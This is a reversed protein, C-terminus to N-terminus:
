ALMWTGDGCETCDASFSQGQAYLWHSQALTPVRLYGRPEGAYLVRYVDRVDTREIKCTLGEKEVFVGKSGPADTYVEYGRIQGRLSEETRLVVNYDEFAPCSVWVKPFVNQLFDWRQGFSWEKFMPFGNWMWIDAIRLTKGEKETRFITTEMIREDCAVSIPRPQATEFRPCYYAQRPMLIIWGPDGSGQPVKCSPTTPAKGQLTLRLSPRFQPPLRLM